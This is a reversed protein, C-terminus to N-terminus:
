KKYKPYYAFRKIESREWEEAFVPINFQKYSKKKRNNILGTIGVYGDECKCIYTVIDFYVHKSFHYCDDVIEKNSIGINKIAEQLSYYTNHNIKSIIEKVKM